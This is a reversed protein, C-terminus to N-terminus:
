FYQEYPKIGFKEGKTPNSVPGFVSVSSYKNTKLGCLLAGLGGMSWGIISPKEENVPYYKRILSPLEETVYTFM